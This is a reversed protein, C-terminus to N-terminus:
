YFRVEEIRRRKRKRKRRKEEFEKDTMEVISRILKRWNSKTVKSTREATKASATFGSTESLSDRWSASASRLAVENWSARWARDAM